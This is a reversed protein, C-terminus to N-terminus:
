MVCLDRYLKDLQKTNVSHPITTEIGDLEAMKEEVM